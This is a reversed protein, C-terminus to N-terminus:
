KALFILVGLGTVTICTITCRYSYYLHYYMHLQLVHNYLLRYVNSHLALFLLLTCTLIELQHTCECSFNGRYNNHVYNHSCEFDTNVILLASSEYVNNEGFFMNVQVRTCICTENNM